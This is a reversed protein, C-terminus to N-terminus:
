AAAKFLVWAAYAEAQDEAGSSSAGGTGPSPTARASRAAAQRLSHCSTRVEEAPWADPETPGDGVKFGGLRVARMRRWPQPAGADQRIRPMLRITDAPPCQPSPSM